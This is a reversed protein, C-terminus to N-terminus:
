WGNWWGRLVPLPQDIGYSIKVGKGRLARNLVIFASHAQARFSGFHVEVKAFGNVPGTIDTDYVRTLDYLRIERHVINAVANMSVVAKQGRVIIVRSAEEWRSGVHEAVLVRNWM